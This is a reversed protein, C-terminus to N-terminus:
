PQSHVRLVLPRQTQNTCLPLRYASQHCVNASVAMALAPVDGSIRSLCVLRWGCVDPSISMYQNSWNAHIRHHLNSRCFVNKRKEATKKKFFPPFPFECKKRDNELFFSFIEKSGNVGAGDYVSREYSMKYGM